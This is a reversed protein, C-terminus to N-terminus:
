DNTEEFTVTVNGAGLSAELGAPNDVSGIYTYSYSTSFTKYFLVLTRSGYLMIDGNRITGPNSAAAPLANPLDYYKENRNLENMAVTLPLLAKFAKASANDSLTATFSAQGIKIVMKMTAPDPEVPDTGPTDNGGPQEPIEPIFPSDEPSCASLGATMMFSLWIIVISKM